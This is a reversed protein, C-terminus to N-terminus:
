DRIAAMTAAGYSASETRTPFSFPADAQPRARKARPTSPVRCTAGATPSRADDVGQESPAADGRSDDDVVLSLWAAAYSGDCPVQSVRVDHTRVRM